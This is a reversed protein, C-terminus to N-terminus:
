KIVFRVSYAYFLKGSPGGHSVRPCCSTQCVPRQPRHGSAGARGVYHPVAGREEGGEEWQSFLPKEETMHRWICAKCINSLCFHSTSATSVKPLAPKLLTTDGKEELFMIAFIVLSVKVSRSGLQDLLSTEGKDLSMIAFIVSAAQVSRPTLKKLPSSLTEGKQELSMIAFIFICSSVKPHAPQSSQVTDRGETGLVHHCLHSHM